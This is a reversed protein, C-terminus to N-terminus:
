FFRNKRLQKKAELIEKPCDQPWLYSIGLCNLCPANTEMSSVSSTLRHLPIAWLGLLLSLLLTELKSTDANFICACRLHILNM